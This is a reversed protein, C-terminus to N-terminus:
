IRAPALGEIYLDSLWTNIGNLKRYPIFVALTIVNATLKNERDYGVAVRGLM